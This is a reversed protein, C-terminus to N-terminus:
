KLISFSEVDEPDVLDLPREIGDVLILPRNNAGFSSVGRIWFSAGSGPEGTGQVSVIGAMQGALSSSIKAVPVKLDNPSVTTIAGIVSAKRQTGFAVVVAEDLNSVVPTMSINIINEKGIDQEKLEFGVITFVLSTGGSPIEIQYSGSADTQVVEETGKVTVTVGALSNGLEDTVKGAVMRNQSENRQY